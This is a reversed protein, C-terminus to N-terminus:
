VLRFEVFSFVSFIPLKSFALITIRDNVLMATKRLESSRKPHASTTKSSTEKSPRCWSPPLIKNLNIPEVTVISHLEGRGARASQFNRPNWGSVAVRHFLENAPNGRKFFSNFGKPAEEAGEALLVLYSM